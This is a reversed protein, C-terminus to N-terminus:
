VGALEPAAVPVRRVWYPTGYDALERMLDAMKAAAASEDPLEWDGLEVDSIVDAMMSTIIKLAAAETDGQAGVNVATCWAAYCISGDSLTDRWVVVDFDPM